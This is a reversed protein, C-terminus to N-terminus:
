LVDCVIQIEPQGIVAVNVMARARNELQMSESFDQMALLALGLAFALKGGRAAPLEVWSRTNGEFGWFRM